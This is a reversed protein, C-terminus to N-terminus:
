WGSVIIGNRRPIILTGCGPQLSLGGVRHLKETEQCVHARGSNTQLQLCSAEKSGAQSLCRLRLIMEWGKRGGAM